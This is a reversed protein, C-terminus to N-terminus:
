RVSRNGAGSVPLSTCFCNRAPDQATIRYVRCMSWVSSLGTSLILCSRVRHPLKCLSVTMGGIRLEVRKINSDEEDFVSKRRLVTGDEKSENDLANWGDVLGVAEEDDALDDFRGTEHAGSKGLLSGPTGRRGDSGRRTSQSLLPSKRISSPLPLSAFFSQFVSSTGAHATSSAM